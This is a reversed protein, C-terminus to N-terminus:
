YGDVVALAHLEDSVRDALDRDTWMARVVSEADGEPLSPVM